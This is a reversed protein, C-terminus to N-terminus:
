WTSTFDKKKCFTPRLNLQTFLHGLSYFVWETQILEYITIKLARLEITYPTLTGCHAFSQLQSQHPHSHSEINDIQLTLYLCPFMLKAFHEIIPFHMKLHQRALFPREQSPVHGSQYSQETLRDNRVITQQQQIM